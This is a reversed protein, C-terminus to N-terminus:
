GFAVSGDTLDRAGTAVVRLSVPAPVASRISRAVAAPRDGPSPWAGSRRLRELLGPDGTLLRGDWRCTVVVGRIQTSFEVM